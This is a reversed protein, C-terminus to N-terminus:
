VRRLVSDQCGAYPQSFNKQPLKQSATIIKIKIYLYVKGLLSTKKHSQNVISTYFRLINFVVLM